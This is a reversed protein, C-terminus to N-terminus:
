TQEIKQHIPVEKQELLHKLDSLHKEQKCIEKGHSNTIVTGKLFLVKTKWDVHHMYIVGELDGGLGNDHFQQQIHNFLVSGFKASVLVVVENSTQFTIDFSGIHLFIICVCFMM